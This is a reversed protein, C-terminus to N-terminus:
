CASRQMEAVSRHLPSTAEVLFRQTLRYLRDLVWSKQPVGQQRFVVETTQKGLEGTESRM